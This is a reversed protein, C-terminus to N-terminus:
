SRVSGFLRDLDRTRFRKVRGRGLRAIGRRVEDLFEPDSMIEVTERWRAFEDASVLVAAARGNRTITVEEDTAALDNVLKSLTAKAEALPLTRMPHVGNTQISVVRSGAARATLAHRSSRCTTRSRTGRHGNAVFIASVAGPHRRPGGAHLVVFPTGELQVPLSSGCVRCFAHRYPPPERLLPAEYITVLEAGRTWSFASALAILEAAFASGTAKRCRTAHCYQMPSVAGDIEFAVGGCLCSGTVM